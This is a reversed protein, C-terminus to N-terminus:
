ELITSWKPPTGGNLHKVLSYIELTEEIGENLVYLSGFGRNLNRGEHLLM